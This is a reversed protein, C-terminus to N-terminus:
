TASSTQRAPTVGGGSAGGPGPSAPLLPGPNPGSGPSRDHDGHHQQQEVAQVNEPLLPHRHLVGVLMVQRDGSQRMIRGRRQDHYAIAEGRGDQHGHLHGAPREVLQQATGPHEVGAPGRHPHVGLRLQDAPGQAVAPAVDGQHGFQEAYREALDLTPRSQTLAQRL